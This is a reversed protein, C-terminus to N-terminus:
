TSAGRAHRDTAGQWIKYEGGKFAECCRGRGIRMCVLKASNQPPMVFREVELYGIDKLRKKRVDPSAFAKVCGLESIAESDKQDVLGYSKVAGPLGPDRGKQPVVRHM